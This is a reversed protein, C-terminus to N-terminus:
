EESRRGVQQRARRGHVKGGAAPVIRWVIEEAGTQRKRRKRAGTARGGCVEDEPVGKEITRGGDVIRQQSATRTGAFLRTETRAGSRGDIQWQPPQGGIAAPTPGV